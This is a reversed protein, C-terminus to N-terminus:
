KEIKESAKNFYVFSPKDVPLVKLIEAFLTKANKYDKETYARVASEFKNKYKKLKNKMTSGYCDLSEFLGIEKSDELTLSGTYRYTFDFGQPLENLTRQSIM